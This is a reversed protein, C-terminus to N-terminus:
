EEHGIAFSVYFCPRDSGIAIGFGIASPTGIMFPKALGESVRLYTHELANRIAHLERADATTYCSQRIAFAGRCEIKRSWYDKTL